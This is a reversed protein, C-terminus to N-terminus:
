QVLRAPGDGGLLAGDVPATVDLRAGGDALVRGFVARGGVISLGASPSGPTFTADPAYVTGRVTLPAGGSLRHPLTMGPDIVLATGAHPGSARGTLTVPEAGAGDLAIGPLGGNPLSSGDAAQGTTGGCLAPLVPTVAVARRCTVYFLADDADAAFVVRRVPPDVPSGPGGILVYTGGPAFSTCASVDVYNGPACAGAAAVVAPAGFDVGDGPQLRGQDRVQQPVLDQVRVTGPTWGPPPTITTRVVAPSRVTYGPDLAVTGGDLDVGQAALDGGRVTIVAGAGVAAVPGLVCLACAAEAAAAWTATATSSVTPASRGIVGAFVSPVSRGPVTVRALRRDLDLSVCSGPGVVLPLAAPDVCAAWAPDDDPVGLNAEVYRRAAAAADGAGTEDAPRAVAAALAASGAAGVAQQQVARALGLDLVLAMLPLAVFVVVLTTLLAVVGSDDRRGSRRARTLRRM